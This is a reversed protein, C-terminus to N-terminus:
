TRSASRHRPHASSTCGTVRGCRPSGDRGSITVSPTRLASAAMECPTSATASSPTQFQRPVFPSPPLAASGSQSTTASSPRM